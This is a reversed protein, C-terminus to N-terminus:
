IKVFALEPSLTFNLAPYPIELRRYFHEAFANRFATIASTPEPAGREVLYARLEPPALVGHVPACQGCFFAGTEPVFRCIHTLALHCKVCHTLSGTLGLETMLFWYFRLEATRFPAENEEDHHAALEQFYRALGKFIARDPCHERLARTLTKCAAMALLQGVLTTIRIPEILEASALLYGARGHVLMIDAIGFSELHPRVKALPKAAGRARARILGRELTLATYFRDAENYPVRDLILATVRETQAM